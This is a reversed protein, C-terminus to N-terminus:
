KFHFTHHFNQCKYKHYFYLLTVFFVLFSFPKERNFLVIKAVIDQTKGGHSMSDNISFFIYIWM